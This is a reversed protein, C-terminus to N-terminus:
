SKEGVYFRLQKGDRECRVGAVKGAQAWHSICQRASLKSAYHTSVGDILQKLNCGPHREVYRSIERCTAMFPTWRRGNFNGAMAYTQHEPKLRKLITDVKAKRQLQAPLEEFYGAKIPVGIVGIGVSQCARAVFGHEGPFSGHPVAASSWHAYPLWRTTQDLLAISLSTKCEIVWVRRGQVAVIDAIYGRATVEQYVTWQHDQLYVVVISALEQETIKM